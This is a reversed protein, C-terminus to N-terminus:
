RRHRASPCDGPSTMADAGPRLPHPAPSARTGPTGPAGPTGGYNEVGAARALELDLAERRIRQDVYLLVSVGAKFPLTITMAIVQGIGLIILYTWSLAPADPDFGGSVGESVLAVITFPIGIVFEVAGAIVSALVSIGLIRWWSNRVLKDSRSLSRFVSSRELMLVSPSLSVRVYLWVWVAFGTLGGLVALTLVGGASMGAVGAIVAPVFGIAIIVGGGLAVLATLGALRLLQPRCDRWADGVSSPRGLVARSYIMTLMATAVITCVFTVVLAGAGAVLTGSLASVLAEDSESSPRDLEEIRDFMFGQLLTIALVAFIAVTFSIPLVSRWHTRLTAVAGDLIEGLGLPRLPIVGPKAAPAQGPAPSGGSPARRPRSVATRPRDPSSRTRAWGTGPQPTAAPPPNESSGPSSWQGPPPQEASWKPDDAPRSPQQAGGDSSPQDAPTEPREGDSPSSGPTAWGPSDNM